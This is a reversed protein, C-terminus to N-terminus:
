PNTSGVPLDFNVRVGGYVSRVPTGFFLLEEYQRDLLNEVRVYGQISPTFAYSAAVNM